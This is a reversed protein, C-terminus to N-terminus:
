NHISELKIKDFKDFKNSQIIDTVKLVYEFGIEAYRDLFNAMELGSLIKENKITLSRYNRMKKYAPHTNLNFIYSNVSDSINNFSKVSFNANLNDRPKIGSNRKWTWEGFLANGEKVFRSSGWGSEIAAQALMMSIPIENIKNLLEEKIKMMELSSINYFDITKAKKVKYRKSFYKIKGINNELFAIKMKKREQLVIENGKLTIPLLISIFLKKKRTPEYKDLDKPLQTMFIRPLAIGRETNKLIQNSWPVGIKTDFIHNSSFSQSNLNLNGQNDSNFSPRADNKENLLFSIKPAELKWFGPGLIGSLCLIFTLITLYLNQSHTLINKKKHINLSSDLM